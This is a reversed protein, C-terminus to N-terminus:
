DLEPIDMDLDLDLDNDSHLRIVSRGRLYTKGRSLADKDLFSKYDVFQGADAKFGDLKEARDWTRLRHFIIWRNIIYGKWAKTFKSRPKKRNEYSEVIDWLKPTIESFYPNLSRFDKFQGENAFNTGIDILTVAIDYTIHSNMGLFLDLPKSMKKNSLYSDYTLKWVEPMNAYDGIEYQYFALRYREATGVLLKIYWDLDHFKQRAPLTFLGETLYWYVDLFVLRRDNAQALCDHANKFTSLTNEKTTMPKEVLSALTVKKGNLVCTTAAFSSTALGLTFSVLLAKKLM